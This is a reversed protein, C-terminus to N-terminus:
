GVINLNAFKLVLKKRGASQFDIEIRSNEDNGSCSKVIGYGFKPHQVRSGVQLYEGDQNHDFDTAAQFDPSEPPEIDYQPNINSVHSSGSGYNTQQRWPKETFSYRSSYSGSADSSFDIKSVEAMDMERLFKSLRVRENMGRMKRIRPASLTLVDEARTCGVYFLRREEETQEEEDRRQMPLTGDNLGTLFVRQFELGKAAHLTMLTVGSAQAHTPKDSLLAIDQLYSDLTLDPNDEEAEVVSNLFEDLNELRDQGEEEKLYSEQLSSEELIKEILVSLALEKSDKRWKRVLETFAVVKKAAGSGIIAPALTMSLFLNQQNLRAHEELKAVSTAGIGRKPTNVIRQLAISDDPNNLAKLYALVDKVEKRQYFSVGGVIKNPIREKLLANELSRSQANTRYFIAINNWTDFPLDTIRKAIWEAERYEDDFICFQVKEGNERRSFVRKELEKERTNNAIVSGALRVIASSSRYNEELKFIKADPFDRAFSKLIELDAGRWGYISQDDDGVVTINRNDGLLLRLLKYQVPNTDQYEDVFFAQFGKQLHGRIEPDKELISVTKCLLDDFDLANNKGLYKQYASYIEAFQIEDVFEAEKRAQDPDISKNKWRSIVTKAVKIEGASGELGLEGRLIKRLLVKQDDDDFISFRANLQGGQGPIPQPLVQRLLRVCTGHFTGMWPFYYSGGLITELRSKMEAAAKNTFTVAFIRGPSVKHASVLHAIKLTLTRTKGSGAGALILSAGDIHLAAQCQPEALNQELYTQDINNM